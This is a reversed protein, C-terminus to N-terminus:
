SIYNSATQFYNIMHSQSSHCHVLVIDSSHLVNVLCIRRVFTKIGQRHASTSQLVLLLLGFSPPYNSSPSFCQFHSSVHVTPFLRILTFGRCYRTDQTFIRSSLGTFSCLHVLAPFANKEQLSSLLFLRIIERM